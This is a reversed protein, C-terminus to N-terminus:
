MHVLTRWEKQDKAFQRAADVTMGRNGLAEKVGDMWVKTERTGARLM